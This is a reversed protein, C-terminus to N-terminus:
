TGCFEGAHCCHVAVTWDTPFLKRRLCLRAQVDLQRVSMQPPTHQVWEIPREFRVGDRIEIAREILEDRDLVLRVDQRKRPPETDEAQALM